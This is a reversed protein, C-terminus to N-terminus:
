GYALVLINFKDTTTEFIIITLKLTKEVYFFSKLRFLYKKDKSKKENKKDSSIKKVKELDSLISIYENKEKPPFNQIM